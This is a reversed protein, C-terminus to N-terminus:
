QSRVRVWERADHAGDVLAPREFEGGAVAHRITRGRRGYEDALGDGAFVTRGLSDESHDVVNGRMVSGFFNALMYEANIRVRSM